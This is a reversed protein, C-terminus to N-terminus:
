GSVEGGSVGRTLMSSIRTDRCPELAMKSVIGEVVQKKAQLPLVRVTSGDNRTRSTTGVM